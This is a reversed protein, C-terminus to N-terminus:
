RSVFRRLRQPEVPKLVPKLIRVTNILAMKIDEGTSVVEISGDRYHNIMSAWKRQPLNSTKEKKPRTKKSHARYRNQRLLEQIPPTLNESDVVSIDCIVTEGVPHLLLKGGSAILHELPLAIIGSMPEWEILANQETLGSLVLYNQNVGFLAKNLNDGIGLTCKQEGIVHAIFKNDQSNVAPSESVYVGRNDALAMELGPFHM